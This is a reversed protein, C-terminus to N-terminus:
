GRAYPEDASDAAQRSELRNEAVAQRVSEAEAQFLALDASQAVEREADALIIRAQEEIAACRGPDDGAV